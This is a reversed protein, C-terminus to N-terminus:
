FQLRDGKVLPLDFLDLGDGSGYPGPVIFRFQPRSDIGEHVARRPRTTGAVTSLDTPGALGGPPPSGHREALQRLTTGLPVWVSQHGVHVQIEPVIVARSRFSLQVTDLPFDPDAQGVEATAEELDALTDAGILLPSGASGPAGPSTSPQVLRYHAKRFAPNALDIVTALGDPGVSARTTLGAPLPGFGLLRETSGPDPGPGGYANVQLYSSPGDIPGRRASPDSAQVFQYHEADIRLRMGPQLDVRGADAHWGYHYTLVRDYRLPLREAIRGRLVEVAGPRLSPPPPLAGLLDRHHTDLQDATPSRTLDIVLETGDVSGALTFIPDTAASTVTTDAPEFLVPLMTRITRGARDPALAIRPHNDDGISLEYDAGHRGQRGFLESGRRNVEDLVAGLLESPAAPPRYLRTNVTASLAEEDDHRPPYTVVADVGAQFGTPHWEPRYTVPVPSGDLFSATALVSGSPDLLEPLPHSAPVDIRHHGALFLTGNRMRAVLEHRGPGQGPWDTSIALETTAVGIKAAGLDHDPLALDPDVLVPESTVKGAGRGGEIVLDLRASAQPHSWSPFLALTGQRCGLIDGNLDLTGGHVEHTSVSMTARGDLRHRGSRDALVSTDDLRLQLVAVEAPDHVASPPLGVDAAPASSPGFSVVGTASMTWPRETEGTAQLEVVDLSVHGPNPRATLPPDTTFALRRQGGDARREVQLAITHGLLDIALGAPDLRRDAAVAWVGDSRNFRLRASPFNWSEVLTLPGGPDAALHLGDDLFLEAPMGGEFPSPVGSMTLEAGPTAGPGGTTDFAWGGDADVSLQVSRIVLRGFTAEPAGSPAGDDLEITAEGDFRLVPSGTLDVVARLESAGFLSFSTHHDTTADPGPWNLALGGFVFGDAVEIPGEREALLRGTDASFEIPLTQDFPAPADPVTVTAAMTIRPRHLDAAEDETLERGYIAVRAIRGAWSRGGDVEDGIAFGFDTSWDTFDGTVDDLSRSPDTEDRGDVYLRSRVQDGDDGTGTKATLIVGNQDGAADAQGRTSRVTSVNRADIGNSAPWSSGTRLRGVYTTMDNQIGQALTVNRAEWDQSSTVIRRPLTDGDQDPAPKIWAAVSVEGTDRCREVIKATASAADDAAILSAGGALVIARGQRDISARGPRRPVLDLGALTGDNGNWVHSTDNFRDISSEDFTYLALVDRWPDHGVGVSFETIDLTAGGLDVVTSGPGELAFRLGGDAGLSARLLLERGLLHLTMTGDVEFGAPERTQRFTVDLDSFAIAGRQGFRERNAVRVVLEDDTLRLAVDDFADHPSAPLSALALHGGRREVEPDPPEALEFPGTPRYGQAPDFFRVGDASIVFTALRRETPDDSEVLTITGRAISPNEAM